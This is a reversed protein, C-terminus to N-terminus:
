ALGAKRAEDLIQSLATAETEGVRRNYHPIDVPLYHRFSLYRSAAKLLKPGIRLWAIAQQVPIEKATRCLEDIEQAATVCEKGDICDPNYCPGPASDYEPTTRHYMWGRGRCTACTRAFPSRAHDLKLWQECWGKGIHENVVRVLQEVSM